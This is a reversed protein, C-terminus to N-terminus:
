TWSNISRKMWKKKRQKLYQIRLFIYIFLRCLLKIEKIVEQHKLLVAVLINILVYISIVVFSSFYVNTLVSMLCISKLPGNIEDFPPNNIDISTEINDLCLVYNRLTDKMIGNWNDGTFIRFLTLFAMGFNHFHAHKSLGECPKM